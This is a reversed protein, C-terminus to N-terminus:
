QTISHDFLCLSLLYCTWNLARYDLRHINRKQMLNSSMNQNYGQVALIGETGRAKSRCATFHLPILLFVWPLLNSHRWIFSDFTLWYNLHLPDTHISLSPQSSLSKLSMSAKILFSSFQPFIPGLFSLHPHFPQLLCTETLVPRPKIDELSFLFHIRNSNGLRVTGSLM